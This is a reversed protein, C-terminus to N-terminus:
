SYMKTAARRSDPDENPTTQVGTQPLRGASSLSASPVGVQPLRDASSLSRRALERMSARLSLEVDTSLPDM